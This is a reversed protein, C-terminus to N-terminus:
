TSNAAEEKKFFRARLGAFLDYIVPVVILTFLTSTVLGGIVTIAMPSRFESGEGLELAIPLMGLILALSTMLVPRLRIPGATLLAAKVSLGQRRLINTFDILIISNKAAIGMLLIVGIMATIDLPRGTVLLALFAGIAALPLAVMIILPQLFSGFQSALVMYIFIVSLLLSLTLVQFSEQMMELQGGFKYKVSPPISVKDMREEIMSTIQSQSYDTFNAGIVIQRQRDQRMIVGSGTSFSARAVSNLPVQLGRYSTLTTNLIDQYNDRDQEQLRVTIDIDKGNEQLKSVTEGEVLTRLTTGIQAVSIGSDAARQRDVELRIEPKGPRSSIDIDILGPVDSMANMVRSATQELEELSGSSRLQLQIPRGFVAERGSSSGAGMSQISFSMKGLSSFTSRIEEKLKNEIKRDELQVFFSAIEPYSDSGVSTFENKVSPHKILWNELEKIKGNTMELPTGPPLELTMEFQGQGLEQAWSRGLIPLVAMGAIFLALAGGITLLRRKLAWSLFIRYVRSMYKQASDIRGSLRSRFTNRSEGNGKKFYHASLMPALTFAEFLSILVAASVVIGFEKLFRGIIGSAFGIPLFVSVVTFTMAMVTLAVEATGASAAESPKKGGEMHRFINERVVIADDILLGICLALALLTVMNLTYGLLSMIFFTAIVIFPLGIVTIITNRLDRFFLLVVLSAMLAGLILDRLTSSASRKIFDAQDLVLTFDLGPYEKRLREVEKLVKDAVAVTNTGSQKWISVVVTDKGNLRTLSRKEKFGDKVSAVDRIHVPIGGRNDIAIGSIDSPSQFRGLTRLSFEAEPQTIRGAPININERKLAAIIQQPSLQLAKLRSLSLEVQVERELGGRVKVEAVGPIRELAPKISDDLLKRLSYENLSSSKDVAAISLIPMMSPDFRFVLPDKADEPLSSRISAIKERVDSNAKDAAQELNFEVIIQSLSESSTSRVSKVGNLAGLADELPRSVETEVEYPSAGPYVTSVTVIPLSVDPYLDVGIRTYSIVGLVLLAIFIMTIFVPRKISTDSIWM